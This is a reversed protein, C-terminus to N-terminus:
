SEKNVTRYINSYTGIKLEQALMNTQL